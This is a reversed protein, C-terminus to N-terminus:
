GVLFVEKTVDVRLLIQSAKVLATDFTAADILSYVKIDRQNHKLSFILTAIASTIGIESLLGFDVLYRFKQEVWRM